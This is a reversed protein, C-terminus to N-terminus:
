VKIFIQDISKSVKSQEIVIPPHWARQVVGRGPEKRTRTQRSRYGSGLVTPRLFQVVGHSGNLRDNAVQGSRFARTHRVDCLSRSSVAEGVVHTRHIETEGIPM